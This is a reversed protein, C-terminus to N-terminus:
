VHATVIKTAKRQRAERERLETLIEKRRMRDAAAARDGFVRDM